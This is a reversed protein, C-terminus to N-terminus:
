ENELSKIYEDFFELRNYIWTRIDEIEKEVDYEYWTQSDRYAAGKILNNKYGDLLKDFYEKTLINKRLSWYRNILLKNIEPANPHNFNTYILNYDESKKLALLDNKSDFNLGFSYEMDWPQIFVEESNLHKMYFYNNKYLNNDMNNIFANFIVIDIYNEINWTDNITKYSSKFTYEYYNSLKNLIKKWSKQFLDEDNPYKLEYELYTDIDINNLNMKSNPITWGQSKLIISTNNLSSKTLNIKKRNVPETFVYLGKYENNIFLEVFQSNMTLTSFDSSIDNWLSSALVNRIKSPDRYVADLIFSSGYYFDEIIIDKDKTYAENYMKIKYSKKPFYIATNGRTHVIINSRVIKEINESNIYKFTSEIDGTDIM